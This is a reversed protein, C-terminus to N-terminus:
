QMRLGGNVDLVAGTVFGAGESALYRVAAAVEDPRGIRGAPLMTLNAFGRDGEATGRAQALMPTDIPGPAISNATLGIAALERAAAKTLSLVAGKSAIYGSNAQYGGIQAAASSITIIRGGEVPRIARRRAMERVCLFTGRANVAFLREWRELDMEAISPRAEHQAQGIYGAFTVLVGVPGLAAEVADFGALVSAETSVDMEVGMHGEGGLSAAAAEAGALSVDAIAIRAGDEALARATALGLSGAGGTIL